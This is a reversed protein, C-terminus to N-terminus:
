ESHITEPNTAFTPATSRNSRLPANTSSVADDYSTFSGNHHSVGTNTSPRASASSQPKVPYSSQPYPNNKPWHRNQKFLAQNGMSKKAPNHTNNSSSNKLNALRKM